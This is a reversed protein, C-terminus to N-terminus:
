KSLKWIEEFLRRNFEAFEKDQIIISHQETKGAKLFQIKDGYVYFSINLDRLLKDFFRTKRLEKNDLQNLKKSNESNEAVVKMTVKNEKRKRRFQPHYFPILELISTNVYAKVTTNQNRIMDETASMIGREGEFFEVKTKELSSKNLSKLDDMIPAILAKKEELVELFREPPAAIYYKVGDSISHSLFGKEELQKLIAYTTERLINSKESIESARARGLLTAAIYVSSEKESLGYARITRHLEELM